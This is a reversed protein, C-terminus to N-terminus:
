ASAQACEQLAQLLLPALAEAVDVMHADETGAVAPIEVRPIGPMGSARAVFDGQPLFETM